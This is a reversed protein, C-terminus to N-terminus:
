VLGTKQLKHTQGRTFNILVPSIFATRFEPATQKLFLVRCLAAVHTHERIM